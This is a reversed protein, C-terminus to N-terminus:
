RSTPGRRRGSAWMSLLGSGITITLGKLELVRQGDGDDPRQGRQRDAQWRGRARHAPLAVLRGGPEAAPDHRGTWVFGAAIPTRRSTGATAMLSRGCAPISRRSWAATTSPSRRPSRSTTSRRRRTDEPTRRLPLRSWIPRPTTDSASPRRTTAPRTAPSTASMSRPGTATANCCTRASQRAVIRPARGARRRRTM